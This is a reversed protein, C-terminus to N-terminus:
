VEYELGIKERVADLTAALDESFSHPIMDSEIKGAEICQMVHATEFHYGFGEYPIEIDRSQTPHFTYDSITLKHVHHWRKHMKISGKSGHIQAEIPTDAVITCHSTSMKKNPFNFIMACSEDVDTRTFTAAALIDESEPKGLILQSLLVPYIGIDLLAGGGQNKDYLRWKPDFPANFGFDSQVTHVEGIEGDEILKLAHDFAPIFRTWIAEMLFTRNRRALNTMQRVEQYNMAMPKECLVPIQRVLCMMTNEFHLVHPTAIYVADLDPCNLIGEYTGYIHTAGFEKAFTDAREYSTSAVAHLKANPILALDSAFKRAIRGMGIIGWNFTKKMITLQNKTFVQTMGIKTVDSIDFTQLFEIL